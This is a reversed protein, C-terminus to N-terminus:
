RGLVPVPEIVDVYPARDAVPSGSPLYALMLDFFSEEYDAVSMGMWNEFALAFPDGERMDVYVGKVDSWSKGHGEPDVLYAVALGFSPYYSGTRGARLIEPPFDNWEHVAIPNGQGRLAQRLDMWELLQERTTIDSARPGSIYTAVGERFWVDTHPEFNQSDLLLFELDHMFEHKVLSKYREPTFGELDYRPSDYAIVLFGDRYAVGTYRIDAGQYRMAFIDIMKDPTTYWLEADSTIEFTAKLETFSEEALGAVYARAEMSSFGSYVVFHESEYPQGDHGLYYLPSGLRDIWSGEYILHATGAEVTLMYRLTTELRGDTVALRVEHEGINDVGAVGSLMLNVSDLSLWSPVMVGRVTTEDGDPDGVTFDYVYLSDHTISLPPATTFAPARNEHSGEPGTTESDACGQIILALLVLAAITKTPSRYGTM